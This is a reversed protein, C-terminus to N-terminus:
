NYSTRRAGANDHTQIPRLLLSFFRLSALRLRFGSAVAAGKTPLSNAVQVSLSATNQRSKRSRGRRANEEYTIAEQNAENRRQRSFQNWLSQRKLTEFRLHSESHERCRDSPRQQQETKYEEIVKPLRQRRTPVADDRSQLIGIGLSRFRSRLWVIFKNM